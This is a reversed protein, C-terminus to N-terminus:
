TRELLIEKRIMQFFVLLASLFFVIYFPFSIWKSIVVHQTEDKLRFEMLAQGKESKLNLDPIGECPYSALYCRPDLFNDSQVTGIKRPFFENTDGFLPDSCYSIVGTAPDIGAMYKYDVWLNPPDLFLFPYSFLFLFAGVWGVRRAKLPIAGAVKRLALGLCLLLVFYPLLTLSFWRPNSRLSRFIPLASLLPQLEGSTVLAGTFVISLFVFLYRWAPLKKRFYWLLSLVGVAAGPALFQYSEWNGIIWGMFNKVDYPFPFFFNSLSYTLANGLGVQDLNALRPYKAMLNLVGLIKGLAGLCGLSFFFGLNWFYSLASNQKSIPADKIETDRSLFNLTWFSAALAILGFIQIYIGSTYFLHAWWFSVAFKETLGSRPNRMVDFIWPLLVFQTYNIHGTATHILFWGQCCWALGFVVASSQSYGLNRALRVCGFYGFTMTFLGAAFLASLADGFLGFLHYLSWVFGSQSSFVPLGLCRIPSFDIDWASYKEWAIRFSNIEPVFLSYDM